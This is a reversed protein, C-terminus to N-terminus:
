PKWTLTPGVLGGSRPHRGARRRFRRYRKDMAAKLNNQWDELMRPNLGSPERLQASLVSRIYALSLSDMGKYKGHTVRPRDDGGYKALIARKEGDRWREQAQGM